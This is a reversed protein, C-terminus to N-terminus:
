VGERAPARFFFEARTGKGPESRIVVKTELQEALANVLQLGISRPKPGHDELFGTGDDAIVLRVEDDKRRAEVLIQGQRGNPFAHKCANTILESAILALPTALDLTVNVHDGEVHLHVHSGQDAFSVAAEAMEKLYALLDTEADGGHRYFYEHLRALALVRHRMVDILPKLAMDATHAQLGILSAVVQMNNKVRHHVERMLVQNQTVKERLRSVANRASLRLELEDM